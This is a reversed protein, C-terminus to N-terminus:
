CFFPRYTDARALLHAPPPTRRVRVICLLTLLRLTIPGYWGQGVDRQKQWPHGALACKMLRSGDRIGGPCTEAERLRPLEDGSFDNGRVKRSRAATEPASSKPLLSGDGWTLGM